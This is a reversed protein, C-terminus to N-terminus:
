GKKRAEPDPGIEPVPMRHDSQKRDSSIWYGGAKGGYAKPDDHLPWWFKRIIENYVWRNGPPGTWRCHAQFYPNYAERQLRDYIRWVKDLFENFDLRQILAAKFQFVLGGPRTWEEQSIKSYRRYFSATGEKDSELIPFQFCAIYTGAWWDAEAELETILANYARGYKGQLESLPVKERNHKLKAFLAEFRELHEKDTM